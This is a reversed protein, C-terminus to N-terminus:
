YGSGGAGTWRAWTGPVIDIFLPNDNTDSGNLYEACDCHDSWTVSVLRYHGAFDEQIFVSSLEDGDILDCTHMKVVMQDAVSSGACSTPLSQNGYNALIVIRDKDFEANLGSGPTFPCANGNSVKGNGCRHTDTIMEWERANDMGNGSNVVPTGPGGDSPDRWCLNPSDKECLPAFGPPNGLVATHSRSAHAGAYSPAASSAAVLPALACTAAILFALRRM